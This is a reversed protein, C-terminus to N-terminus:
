KNRVPLSFYFCAGKDVAGEAWVRGGHRNVIRQVIALGAGSGEYEKQAHLRQFVGFLKMYYKMDFGVGNDRVFFITESDATQGGIEIQANERKRTFKVANSLLNTLVQRVLSADGIAPPLIDIKLSMGRGPNIILLEEWVQKALGTMDIGALSMSTRGLRSFALLDNILQGMRRASDTLVGFQRKEDDSLRAATEEFLMRSFGEIARLPARLDHSISYAFSELEKNAAELKASQDNLALEARKKLLAQLVVPAFAEITKQQEPTFGGERNGVAIMGVAKGERILPTGLFSTLPPHGKPIGISDPHAAPDNVLLSRGDRLVSGYLGYIKFLGPTRRHGAPDLSACAEWGPNSITIDYLHDDPGIEGIFGITSGTLQEIVDLCVRGLQEETKCTITERFITNIGELIKKQLSEREEALKRSTIDRINCQIIKTHDVLYVNSVFEVAIPQGSLTELPLDDYRIYANDQLTKFAEKSAAIDKFAGLDWLYKGYVADFSYGLLQLLFPNVDFVRGTDADLIMIGDKASEFLRRYSTESDQLAVTAKKRETIDTITILCGIFVHDENRLPVATLSIDRIEKGSCHLSAEDSQLTKGALVDRVSFLAPPQGEKAPIEIRFLEDFPKMLVDESCFQNLARSGRIVFGNVDCVAIGDASNDMIARSLKEQRVIEQYRLQESLDTVVATLAEANPTGAKGITIQVPVTGSERSNLCVQLRPVKKMGNPLDAEVRHRDEQSIFNLFSSGVIEELSYGLMDAFQKNSFLITGDMSITVTGENISEVLQRYSQDAGQLTYVQEGKEGSVVIADVSGSRIAELTEEAERLRARLDELEGPFAEETM